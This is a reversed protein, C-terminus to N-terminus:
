MEEIQMSNENGYYKNFLEEERAKTEAYTVQARDRETLPAPYQQYMMLRLNMAEDNKENGRLIQRLETQYM